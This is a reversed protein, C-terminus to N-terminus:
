TRFHETAGIEIFFTRSARSIARIVPLNRGQLRLNEGDITAIARVGGWKVEFIHDPSDFPEEVITALMPRLQAARRSDLAVPPEATLPSGRM